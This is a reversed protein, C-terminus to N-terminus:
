SPSGTPSGTPSTTPSGTPSGTPSETPTGTPTATPSATPSPSPSAGGGGGGAPPRLVNDIIYVTANETHVDGCVVKANGNVTFNQGSGTVRLTSGELTTHTGALQAPSLRGRVVHYRLVRTLLDKNNLVSDLVGAPLKAFASNDPAFVTINPTRNLFSAVGATNIARTMTTLSPIHSVATAVPQNALEAFSGPGSKPVSACAPGFSNAASMAGSAAQNSAPKPTATSTSSASASNSSTSCGAATVALIAAAAGAAATRTVSSM